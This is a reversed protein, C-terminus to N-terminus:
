TRRFEWGSDHKFRAVFGTMEATATLGKLLLHVHDPMLVYADVAIDHARSSQPLQERLAAAIEREALLPQREFTSFTVFYQRRGTYSGDKLRPPRAMISPTELLPQSLLWHPTIAPSLGGGCMTLTTARLHSTVTHPPPKGGGDGWPDAERARLRTM